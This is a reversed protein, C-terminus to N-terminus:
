YIQPLNQYLFIIKLFWMQCREPRHSLHYVLKRGFNSTYKGETLIPRFLMGEKKQTKEINHIVNSFFSSVYNKLVGLNKYEYLEEVTQSGLACSRKNM